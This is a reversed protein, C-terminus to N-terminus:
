TASRLYTGDGCDVLAAKDKLKVLLQANAHMLDPIAAASGLIILKPMPISLPLNGQGM